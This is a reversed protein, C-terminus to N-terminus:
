GLQSYLPITALYIHLQIHTHRDPQRVSQSVESLPRDERSLRNKSHDRVVSSRKVSRSVAESCSFIYSGVGFRARAVSINFIKCRCRVWTVGKRFYAGFGERAEPINFIKCVSMRSMIAMIGKWVGRYSAVSM